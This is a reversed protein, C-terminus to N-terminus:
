VRAVACKPVALRWYVGAATRRVQREARQRWHVFAVAGGAAAAAVGLTVYARQM